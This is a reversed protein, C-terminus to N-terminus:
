AEPVELDEYIAGTAQNFRERHLDDAPTGNVALCVVLREEPDAFAVVSRYGSHGFSRNSAGAGYGYPSTEEAHHASNVIFGLGWDLHHRFTHDWLGVRQRATMTEVTQPSLLRRGNLTGGGLLMSYFNALQRMPGIGNAGPSCGTAHAADTWPHPKPAEGPERPTETDYAPALRDGYEDYRGGPMGIWCDDMALPRFIRDRIYDSFPQGSVRQIIEGLVFWSSSLHYGAKRGPVWGPELKMTCVKALVAEWSAKPWGLNLARIGGTHTLLHRVTVADKGGSAFEPIHRAVPDDLDLLNREWLQAIAVATIPKSASLWPVLHEPTMAEGPRVEGFGVDAITRDQQRLHIQGGLHLGTAVGDDLSALTRPLPM